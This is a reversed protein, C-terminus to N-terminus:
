LLAAQQLFSCRRLMVLAKFHKTNSCLLNAELLNEIDGLEFLVFSEAYPFFAPTKGMNM